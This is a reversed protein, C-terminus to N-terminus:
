REPKMKRKSIKVSEFFLQCCTNGNETGISTHSLIMTNSTIWSVNWDTGNPLLESNLVGEKSLSWSSSDTATAGGIGYVTVTVKGNSSFTYYMSGGNTEPEYVNDHSLHGASDWQSVMMSDFHWTGIINGLTNTSPATAYAEGHWTGNDYSVRVTLGKKEMEKMWKKIEERSATSISQNNKDAGQQSVLPLTAQNANYFTVESGKRAQDCLQDLLNDWESETALTQRSEESGVTYIISRAIAADNSIYSGPNETPNDQKECGTSIATIAMFLLLIDRLNKKM